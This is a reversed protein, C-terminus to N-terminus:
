AQRKDSRVTSNATNGEGEAPIFRDRCLSISLLDPHETGGGSQGGRRERKSDKWVPVGRDKTTM